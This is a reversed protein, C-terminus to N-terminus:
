NFQKYDSLWIWDNQSLREATKFLKQESHRHLRLYLVHLLDHIWDLDNFLIDAPSGGGGGM